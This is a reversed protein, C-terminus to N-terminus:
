TTEAYVVLQFLFHSSNLICRNVWFIPTISVNTGIHKSYCEEENFYVYRHLPSPTTHPFLFLLLIDIAANQKTSQVKSVHWTYQIIKFFWFSFATRLLQFLGIVWRNWKHSNIQLFRFSVLAFGSSCTCGLTWQLATQLLCSTSAAWTDMLLPTSLVAHYM